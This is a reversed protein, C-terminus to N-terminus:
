KSSTKFSIKKQIWSSVNKFFTRLFFENRVMEMNLLYFNNNKLRAFLLPEQNNKFFSRRSVLVHYDQFKANLYREENKINLITKISFDDEYKVSDIFKCRSLVSKKLIQKKSFIRDFDLRLEDVKSIKETNSSYIEILIQEEVLQEEFLLNKIESVTEEVNSVRISSLEGESYFNTLKLTWVNPEITFVASFGQPQKYIYTFYPIHSIM